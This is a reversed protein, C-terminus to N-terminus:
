QEAAAGVGREVFDAVSTEVKWSRDEGSCVSLYDDIHRVSESVEVVTGLQFPLGGEVGLEAM